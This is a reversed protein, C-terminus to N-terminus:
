FYIGKPELEAAVAKRRAEDLSKDVLLFVAKIPTSQLHGVVTGKIDGKIDYASLVHVNLVVAVKTFKPTIKEIKEAVTKAESMRGAPYFIAAPVLMAGEPVNVENPTYGTGPAPAPAPEATTTAQFNIDAFTPEPPATDPASEAGPPDM